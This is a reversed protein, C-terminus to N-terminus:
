KKLNFCQYDTYGQGQQSIQTAESFILGASTRQEYYKANLEYPVNGPQKSRMRTLPAMVIRNKAEIAGFKIPDFISNM